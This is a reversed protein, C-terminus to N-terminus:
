IYVFRCMTGKAPCNGKHAPCQLSSVTTTSVSAQPQLKRFRTETGAAKFCCPAGSDSQICGVGSPCSSDSECNTQKLRACVPKGGPVLASITRKNTTQIREVNRIIQELPSPTTRIMWPSPTVLVPAPNVTVLRYPSATGGFSRIGAPHVKSKSMANHIGFSNGRMCAPSGWPQGISHLYECLEM